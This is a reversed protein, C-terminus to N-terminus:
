KPWKKNIYEALEPNRRAFDTQDNLWMLYSAPVEQLKRGKYKGFPMETEDTWDQMQSEGQTVLTPTSPYKLAGCHDCAWTLDRWLFMPKDCSPCVMEPPPIPRVFVMIPPLAPEDVMDFDVRDAPAVNIGDRVSDFSLDESPDQSGM